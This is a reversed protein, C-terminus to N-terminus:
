HHSCLSLHIRADSLIVFLKRAGSSIRIAPPLVLPPVSGVAHIEDISLCGRSNGNSTIAEEYAGSKDVFSWERLSTKLSGIVDDGANEDYDLVLVEIPNDIHGIIQLDLLFPQWRPKLSQKVVESRYLIIRKGAQWYPGSSVPTVYVELYPDSKSLPGDMRALKDASCHVVFGMPLVRVQSMPLAVAHELIWAGRRGVTGPCELAGEFWSFATM